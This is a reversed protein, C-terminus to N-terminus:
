IPQSSWPRLRTFRGADDALHHDRGGQRPCLRLLRYQERCGGRDPQPEARPPRSRRGLRLHLGAGEAGQDASRRHRAHHRRRGQRHQRHRWREVRERGGFEDAPDEGTVLIAQSTTGFAMFLNQGSPANAFSFNQEEFATVHVLGTLDVASDHDNLDDGHDIAEYQVTWLKAGTPPTGGTEELYIAFVIDGTSGGARGLVINDNGHRHLSSHGRRRDYRPRQRRRRAPRRQRRDPRHQGVNRDPRVHRRQRSEDRRRDGDGAREVGDSPVFLRDPDILRLVDDDDADGGVSPTAVSNQLGATEDHTITTGTVVVLTEAM